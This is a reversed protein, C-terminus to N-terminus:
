STILDEGAISIAVDDSFEAILSIKLILEFEFLGKIFRLGIRYDFIHIFSKQIQSLVINHM